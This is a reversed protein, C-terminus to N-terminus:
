NTMIKIHCFRVLHNRAIFDLIWKTFVTEEIDFLKCYFNNINQYFEDGRLWHLLTNKCVNYAAVTAQYSKFNNNKYTKITLALREEYDSYNKIRKTSM